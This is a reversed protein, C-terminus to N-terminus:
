GMPPFDAAQLLRNPSILVARELLNRLELINGPWAYVRFAAQVEPNMGEIDKGFRGAFVTLFHRALLLVDEGRERLPPLSVRVKMLHERLAGALAGKSADTGGPEGIGGFLLRVVHSPDRPGAGTPNRTGELIGLVKTQGEPGLAQLHELYLTGGAARQFVPEGLGWEAPDKEGLHRCDLRVFPFEAKPGGHHVLHALLGKGTGIEGEFFLPGKGEAMDKLRGRIEQIRPSLGLFDGPGVVLPAKGRLMRNERQLARAGLANRVIQKLEEHIIPKVVYDYAGARLTEVATELSAYATMVIVMLDPFAEKMRRLLEIGTIGPLVIDTIVLDFAEKELGDMAREANGVTTVRYKERSFVRSLSERLTEEDEVILIKEDM